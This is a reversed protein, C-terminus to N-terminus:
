PLTAQACQEKAFTYDLDVARRAACNVAESRANLQGPAWTTTHEPDIVTKAGRGPAGPGAVLHQGGGIYM